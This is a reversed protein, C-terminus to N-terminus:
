TYVPDGKATLLRSILMAPMTVLTIFALAWMSTDLRLDEAFSISRKEWTAERESYNHWAVLALTGFLAPFLHFANARAYSMSAAFLALGPLVAPLPKGLRRVAWGAWSSSSWLLMSWIVTVAAKDQEPRRQFLLMFWNGERELLARAALGLEVALQNVLRADPLLGGPRWHLATWGYQLFAKTLAFFPNGLQGAGLAMFALGLGTLLVAAQRGSRKSRGLWWSALLATLVISYFNLSELDPLSANLGAVIDGFIIVLCALSALARIGVKRLSWMVLRNLADVIM